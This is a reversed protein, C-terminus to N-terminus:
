AGGSLGVALAGLAAVIAYAAILWGFFGRAPRASVIGLGLALLWLWWLGFVDITGLWLALPTGEEVMPLLAALNSVSTLSERGYHLPTTLLQQVVLVVNAHTVIALMQAFSGGAGRSRALALLGGAVILTVPPLLWPRGGSTLYTLLPPRAQWVEYEADTVQGGFVEIVRVREDVLAQQGVPTSLLWAGAAAWLLLGALWMGAWARHAIATALTAGPRTVMGAFRSPVTRLGGTANAPAQM